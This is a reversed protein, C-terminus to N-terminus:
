APEAAKTEATPPPTPEAFAAAARERQRREAEARRREKHTRWVGALVLAAMLVLIVALAWKAQTQGASSAAPAPEAAPAPTQELAAVSFRRAAGDGTLAIEAGAKLPQSAEGSAGPTVRWNFVMEEDSALSSTQPSAPDITYGAGNLEATVEATRAAEGLGLKAAEARLRSLLGAPLRLEVVGPLGKATSPPVQLRAGVGEAGVLAGQLAALTPDAPPPLPLDHVFPTEPAKAVEGAPPAPPPAPAVPPIATVPPPAPRVVPAVGAVKVSGDSRLRGTVRPRPQAAPAAAPAPEDPITEMTSVVVGDPRRFRITASAPAGGEAGPAPPGGLLGTEDPPRPADSPAEGLLPPPPPAEAPPPPAPAPEPAMARSCAALTAALSLATFRAALPTPARVPPAARDTM